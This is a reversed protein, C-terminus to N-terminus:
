EYLVLTAMDKKCFDCKLLQKMDSIFFSLSESVSKRDYKKNEQDKMDEQLCELFELSGKMKLDGRKLQSPNGIMDKIKNRIIPYIRYFDNSDKCTDVLSKVFVLFYFHRCFRYEFYENYRFFEYSVALRTKSKKKKCFSNELMFIQMCQNLDYDLDRANIALEDSESFPYFYISWRNKSFPFLRDIERSIKVSETGSDEYGIKGFSDSSQKNNISNEVRIKDEELYYNKFCKMKVYPVMTMLGIMYDKLTDKFGNTDGEKLDDLCRYYVKMYFLDLLYRSMIEENMYFRRSFYRLSEHVNSNLLRYCIERKKEDYVETKPAPAKKDKDKLKIKNPLTYCNGTSNSIENNKRAKYMSEHAKSPM